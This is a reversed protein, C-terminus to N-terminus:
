ISVKGDSVGVHFGDFIGVTLSLVVHRLLYIVVVRFFLPFHLFVWILTSSVVNNFFFVEGNKDTLVISPTIKPLSHCFFDSMM